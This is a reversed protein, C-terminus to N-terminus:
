HQLMIPASPSAHSVHVFRIIFPCQSCISTRQMTSVGLSRWIGGYHKSPYQSMGSVHCYIIFLQNRNRENSTHCFPRYRIVSGHIGPDCIHIAPRMQMANLQAGYHSATLPVSTGVMREAFTCFLQHPMTIGGRRRMSFSFRLPIFRISTQVGM